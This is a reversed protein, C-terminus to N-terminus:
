MRGGGMGWSALQAMDAKRTLSARLWVMQKQDPRSLAMGADDSLKLIATEKATM